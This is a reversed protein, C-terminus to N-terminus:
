PAKKNLFAKPSVGINEKFKKSFYVYDTYGCKEAVDSLSLTDKYAEILYTAHNIRLTSLFNNPTKGTVKKFHARIYDEAYGSNRLLEAPNLRSDFFRAAMEDAIKQVACSLADESHLNRLIFHAFADILSNLFGSADVRNRYIMNVLAEGDFSETDRLVVPSSLNLLTDIKESRVAFLKFGTESVTGHSIGPPFIIITGRSFPINGTSTNQHGTGESYYLIEYESHTHVPYSKEGNIGVFGLKHEM